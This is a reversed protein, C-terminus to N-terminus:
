ETWGQKVADGVNFEGEAMQAKHLYVDRNYMELAQACHIFGYGKENNFFKVTGQAM